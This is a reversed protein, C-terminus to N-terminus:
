KNYLVNLKKCSKASTKCTVDCDYRALFEMSKAGIKIGEVKAVDLHLFWLGEKGGLGGKKLLGKGAEFMERRDSSVQRALHLGRECTEVGVNVESVWRPLM